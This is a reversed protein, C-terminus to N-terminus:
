EQRKIQFQIPVLVVGEVAESGRRAPAFRWQKVAQRAARDLRAFGSSKAFDVSLARGEASVVVRLLVQGSEGLELSASPYTPEPNSLYAASFSPPTMAGTAATSETRAGTTETRTHDAEAQPTATDAAPAVRRTQAAASSVPMLAEAPRSPRPRSPAPKSQPTQRPTPPKAELTAAPPQPQEREAVSVATMHAILPIPPTAVALRQSQVAWFLLVHVLLAGFFSISLSTKHAM